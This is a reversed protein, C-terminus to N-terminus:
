DKKKRTDVVSNIYKDALQAGVAKSADHLTKGGTGISGLMRIMFDIQRMDMDPAFLAKFLTPYKDAFEAYRMKLVDQSVRRGIAERILDVHRRIYAARDKPDYDLVRNKEDEILEDIRTKEDAM